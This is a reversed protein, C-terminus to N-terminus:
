IQRWANLCEAANQLHTDISPVLARLSEQDRKRAADEASLLVAALQSLGVVATSGVARHIANEVIDDSKPESGLQQLLTAVEALAEDLFRIANDHGVMESLADAAKNVDLEPQEHNAQTTNEAGPSALTHAVCSAAHTNETQADNDQMLSAAFSNLAHAVDKQSAPKTLVTDMGDHCLDNNRDSDNFATVGIIFARTSKGGARIQRTAERGDMMPMSVDMLIVDYTQKSTMEVAELGNMALNPTHGIRQVIKAMLALNIENDDVVLVNLSKAPRPSEAPPLESLVPPSPEVSESAFPLTIEFCFASGEMPASKLTLAGGMRQVALRAIPLGLGTGGDDSREDSNMTEFNGFIREQDIVPIGIGNDRVEVHLHVEDVSIQSFRLFILVEGDVTFKVANGVLNYLARSFMPALGFCLRDQREGDVILDLTTGRKRALPTLENLINQALSVPLFPTGGMESERLRTIELVENIQQLARQSCHRATQILIQNELELAGPDLLDLSAILGHLPTRMEHSMTALFMTKASAHREAEDLAARLKGEAAVVESIDRLFGILIPRGDLDTDATISVEAAFEEGNPRMVTIRMLGANIMKHYGTKRYNEMGKQYAARLRPPIMLEEVTRGVMENLDVGFIRGAATNVMLIRDDLDAIVVAGLPAEFAKSVIGVARSMRLTREEQERWLRLALIASITMLMLLVSSQVWFRILLEREMMRARESETVLFQMGMVSVDRILAASNRVENAFKVISSTDAPNIAEIQAALRNRANDLDYLRETLTIPVETRQLSAIVTEVRSYFIDFRLHVQMMDAPQESFEEFAVKLLINDVALNLAKHDVDLQAILWGGNDSEAVRIQTTRDRFSHASIILGVCSLVLLVMLIIATYRRSRKPAFMSSSTASM